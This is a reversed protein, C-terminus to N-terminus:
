QQGKAKAIVAKAEDCDEITVDREEFGPMSCIIGVLNELQKLMEPAAANLAEQRERIINECRSEAEQLAERERLEQLAQGLLPRAHDSIMQARMKSRSAWNVDGFKSDSAFPDQYIYLRDVVGDQMVFRYKKGDLFMADGCLHTGGISRFYTIKVVPEANM